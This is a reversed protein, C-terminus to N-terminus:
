GNKISLIKITKNTGNYEVNKRNVHKVLKAVFLDFELSLSDYASTTNQYEYIRTIIWLYDFNFVDMQLKRYILYLYNM